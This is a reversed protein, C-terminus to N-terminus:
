VLQDVISFVTGVELKTLLAKETEQDQLPRMFLSVLTGLDRVYSRETELIESVIKERKLKQKATAREEFNVRDVLAKVEAEEESLLEEDDSDVWANNFRLEDEKKGEITAVIANAAADERAVIDISSLAAHLAVM